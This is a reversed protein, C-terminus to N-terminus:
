FARWFMTTIPNGVVDTQVVCHPRKLSSVFCLIQM